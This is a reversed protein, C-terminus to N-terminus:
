TAGKGTWGARGGLLAVLDLQLFLSQRTRLGRSRVVTSEVYRRGLRAQLQLSEAKLLRMASVSSGSSAGAARLMGFMWCGSAIQGASLM